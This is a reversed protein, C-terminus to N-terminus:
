LPWCMLCTDRCAIADALVSFLCILPSLVTCSQAQKVCNLAMVWATQFLCCSIHLAKDGPALAHRSADDQVHWSM